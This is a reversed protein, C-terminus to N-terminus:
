NREWNSGMEGLAIAGLMQGGKPRAANILWAPYNIGKAGVNWLKRKLGKGTWGTNRFTPIRPLGFAVRSGHQFLGPMLERVAGGIKSNQLWNQIPKRLALPARMYFLAAFEVGVAQNSEFVKEAEKTGYEFWKKHEEPIGYGPSKDYDGYSWELPEGIKEKGAKVANIYDKNALNLIAPASPFPSIDGSLMEAQTLTEGGEFLAGEEWVPYMGYKKVMENRYEKSMWDAFKQGTKQFEYENSLDNRYQDKTAQFYHKFFHDVSDPSAVLDAGTIGNPGIVTNMNERAVQYFEKLVDGPLIPNNKMTSEVRNDIRRQDANDFASGSKYHQYLPWKSLDRDRFIKGGADEYSKDKIPDFPTGDEKLFPPSASELFEKSDKKMNTPKISWLFPIYPTVPHGGVADAVKTWWAGSGESKKTKDLGAGIEKFGAATIAPVNPLWEIGSQLANYPWASADSILNMARQSKDLIPNKEPTMEIGADAFQKQTDYSGWADPIKVGILSDKKGTGRLKPDFAPADTGTIGAWDSIDQIISRDDYYGMDKQWQQYDRYKKGQWEKLRRSKDLAELGIDKTKDYINIFSEIGM